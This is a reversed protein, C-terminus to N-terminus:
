SFVSLALRGSPALVRSTEALAIPRNPFFQLGLQCLVLDFVADSFPMELASGEHWEIAPSNRQPLSRAFAMMGANIDLGVVRGESVREAVM